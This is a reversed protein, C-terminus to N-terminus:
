VLKIKKTHDEYSSSDRSGTTFTFFVSDELFKMAHGVMPPTIVLDGAEVVMSEEKGDELSKVFYEYKGEVLYDNQVQAPHYHNGRISGAKSTILAVHEIPADLVNRIEGREDVFEPKTKILKVLVLLNVLKDIRM